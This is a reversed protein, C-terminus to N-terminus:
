ECTVFLWNVGNGMLPRIYQGDSLQNASFDRKWSRTNLSLRPTVSCFIENEQLKSFKANM